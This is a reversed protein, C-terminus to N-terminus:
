RKQVDATKFFELREAAFKKYDSRDLDRSDLIRRYYAMAGDRNGADEYIIGMYYLADILDSKKALAQEFSRVADPVNGRMYSYHGKFFDYAPDLMNIQRARDLYDFCKSYNGLAYYDAGLNTLAQLSNPSVSITHEWLDFNTKWVRNQEFSLFGYVCLLAGGVMALAHPRWIMLRFSMSALLYCFAFSPLYAYRDAVNMASPLLQMVPLLTVTFWCFSVFIDPLKTRWFFAYLALVVLTIAAISAHPSASWSGFFMKYDASLRYPIILKGLYFFPIQVATAVRYLIPVHLNIFPNIVGSKAAISTFVVYVTGTLIFFPLTAILRKVLSRTKVVAFLALFFIPLSVATAKSLVALGYWFFSAALRRSNFRCNDGLFLIFSRTALFCFLGALLTNRGGGIFNVTECHIPHLAFIAATWFPITKGSLKGNANVDRPLTAVMTEALLYVAVVNLFYLILNTAHFGAPNVGWLVFDIAYSLDKVPLYEVGNGLGLFFRKLDFNRYADINLLYFSDDWVFDNALVNGFVMLVLLLLVALHYIRVKSNQNLCNWINKM